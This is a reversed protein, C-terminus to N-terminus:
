RALDVTHQFALLPAIDVMHFAAGAWNTALATAVWPLQSIQTIYAAQGQPIAHIGPNGANPTPAGLQGQAGQWVARLAADAPDAPACAFRLHNIAAPEDMFGVLSLGPTPM